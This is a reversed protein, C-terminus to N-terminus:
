LYKKIFEIGYIDIISNIYKSINILNKDINEKDIYKYVNGKFITGKSINYDIIEKSYLYSIAENFGDVYVTSSYKLMNSQINNIQYDKLLDDEIRIEKDKLINILKKPYKLLYLKVILENIGIERKYDLMLIYIYYSNLYVNNDIDFFRNIM